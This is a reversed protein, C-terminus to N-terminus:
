QEHATLAVRVLEACEDPRELMDTDFYLTRWGCLTYANRKERDSGHAGGRHLHKGGDIEVALKHWPWARDSVWKRLKGNKTVFRFFLAIPVIKAFPYEREPAPLGARAIAKDFEDALYTDTIVGHERLHNYITHFAKGDQAAIESLSMGANFRDIRSQLIPSTM